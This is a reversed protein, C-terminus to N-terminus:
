QAAPLLKWADTATATDTISSDRQVAYATFTLWPCDAETLMAMMGLTVSEKMKIVDDQLVNFVQDEASEDVARYYVNPVDPLPEWGSAVTYTMFDDFNGSKQLEVYLWCDMSGASVTVKPDKHIDQGPNMTYENTDPNDDDDLGTDTEELDITINGYTFTNKVSQTGYLFALTSGATAATTVVLALIIVLTKKSLGGLLKECTRKLSYM